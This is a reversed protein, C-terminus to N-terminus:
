FLSEHRMADCTGGRRVASDFKLKEEKKEQSRMCTTDTGDDIRAASANADGEEREFRLNEAHEMHAACVSPMSGAGHDNVNM